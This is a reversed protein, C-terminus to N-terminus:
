WAGGADGCAEQRPQEGDNSRGRHKVHPWSLVAGPRHRVHTFTQAHRAPTRTRPTGPREVRAPEPRAMVHSRGTPSRM